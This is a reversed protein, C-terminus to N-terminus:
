TFYQGKYGGAPALKARAKSSKNGQPGSIVRIPVGSDGVAVRTNSHPQPSSPL